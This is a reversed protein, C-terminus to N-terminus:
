RNGVEIDKDVKAEHSKGSPVTSDTDVNISCM